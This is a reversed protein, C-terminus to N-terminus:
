ERKKYFVIILIVSSSIATPTQESYSFYYTFDPGVDGSIISTESVFPEKM